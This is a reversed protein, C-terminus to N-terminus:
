LLIVRLDLSSLMGLGFEPAKPRLSVVCVSSISFWLGGTTANSYSERCTRLAGAAKM